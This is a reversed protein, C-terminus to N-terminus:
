GRSLPGALSRNRCTLGSNAWRYPGVARLLGFIIIQLLNTERMQIRGTQHLKSSRAMM